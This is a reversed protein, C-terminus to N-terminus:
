ASLVSEPCSVHALDQFDGICTYGVNLDDRVRLWPDTVHKASPLPYAFAFIDLVDRADLLAKRFSSLASNHPSTTYDLSGNQEMAKAFLSPGIELAMTGYSALALSSSTSVLLSLSLLLVLQM